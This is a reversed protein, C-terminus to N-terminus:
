LVHSLNMCWQNTAVSVTCMWNRRTGKRTVKNREKKETENRGEKRMKKKKYSGIVANFYGASVSLENGNTITLNGEWVFWVVSLLCASCKGNLETEEKWKHRNTDNETAKWEM